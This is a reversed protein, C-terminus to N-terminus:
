LWQISSQSIESYNDKLNVEYNHIMKYILPIFLLNILLSFVTELKIDLLFILDKYTALLPSDFFDLFFLAIHFIGQAAFPLFLWKNAKTLQYNPNLLYKTFFYFVIPILFTWPFTLYNIWSYQKVLGFIHAVYHLNSLSFALIFIALYINSKRKFQNKSALIFSLFIGQLSGMMIVLIVTKILLDM